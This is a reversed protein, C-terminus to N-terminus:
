IVVQVQSAVGVLGQLMFIKALHYRLLYTSLLYFFTLKDSISLFFTMYIRRM